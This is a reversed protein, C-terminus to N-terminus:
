RAFFLSYKKLYIKWKDKGWYRFHWPEYMYGTIGSKYESYSLFIGYRYSNAMLWQFAVTDKFASSLKNQIEDTTLDCTTGLQHESHGPKAVGDQNEGKQRVANTYLFAQYYSDRFGSVIGIDVGQEMADEIMSSFAMLAKKRLLIKRTEYGEAKFERPVEELDSPVYALPISHFFDVPEEGIPINGESDYKVIAPERHLQTNPLYYFYSDNGCIYWPIREFLIKDKVKVKDGFVFRKEYYKESKFNPERYPYGHLLIFHM